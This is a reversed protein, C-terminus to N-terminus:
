KLLKSVEQLDQWTLKKKSKGYVNESRLLFNPSYTPMVPIGEWNIWEGRCDNISQKDSFLKLATPSFSVVAKPKIKRIQNLLPAAQVFESKSGQSPCRHVQAIYVDKLSLKMAQIMKALLEGAAGELPNMIPDVRSGSPETVFLIKASENLGMDENRSDIKEIGCKQCAVSENRWTAMDGAVVVSPSVEKELPQQVVNANTVDTSDQTSTEPLVETHPKKFSLKEAVVKPQPKREVKRDVPTFFANLVEADLQVRSSGLRKENQLALEVAELIDM